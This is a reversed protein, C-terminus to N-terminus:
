RPVRPTTGEGRLVREYGEHGLARLTEVNKEYIRAADPFTAVARTVSAERLLHLTPYPSRNSLHAADGAAHEGFEFEPHFSAIQLTGSLGLRELEAQALGLFDNYDLFEALVRPAVLLVTDLVEPDAGSLLTLERRLDHLLAAPTEAPSVVYGIQGKVHVGKAFPCLSVGIVIRELWERTAAVVAEDSPYPAELAM